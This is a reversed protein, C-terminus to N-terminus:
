KECILESEDFMNELYKKISEQQIDLNKNYDIYVIKYDMVRAWILFVHRQRHVYEENLCDIGNNRKTMMDVVVSEQGYCPVLIISKWQERQQNKLCKIINCYMEITEDDHDSFILRYLIASTPERDFLHRRNTNKVQYNFRYMMYIMGDLINDKNLHLLDTIEKYDIMHVSYKNMKAMQSLVTSKTTCAVGDLAIFM